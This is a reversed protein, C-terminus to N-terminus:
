RWLMAEDLQARLSAIQADKEQITHEMTGIVELADMCMEAIDCAMGRYQYPCNKEKCAESFYGCWFQHADLGKKVKEIKDMGM